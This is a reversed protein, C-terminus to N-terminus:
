LRSLPVIRTNQYNSQMGSDPTYTELFSMKQKPVNEEFIESPLVFSADTEILRM